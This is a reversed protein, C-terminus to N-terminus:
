KRHVTCMVVLDTRGEYLSSSFARSLWERTRESSILRRGASARIVLAGESISRSPVPTWSSRRGWHRPNLWRPLTCMVTWSSTLNRLRTRRTVLHRRHSPHSPPRGKYDGHLLIFATFYTLLYIDVQLARNRSVELASVIRIDPSCIRRWTLTFAFFHPPSMTLFFTVAVCFPRSVSLCRSGRIDASLCLMEIWRLQPLLKMVASWDTVVGRWPWAVSSNPAEIM